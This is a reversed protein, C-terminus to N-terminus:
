GPLREEPGRGGNKRGCKSASFGLATKARGYGTLIVFLGFVVVPAAATVFVANAGWLRQGTNGLLIGAVAGAVVTAIIDMVAKLSSATGHQSEPVLDPYAGALVRCFIPLFQILIVGFVLVWLSPAVALLFLSAGILVARRHHVAPPPGAQIQGPRFVRRYHAPRGDGGAFRPFGPHRSRTPCTPALQRVKYTV